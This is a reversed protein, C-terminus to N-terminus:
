WFASRERRVAEAEQGDLWELRLYAGRFRFRSQGLDSLEQDLDEALVIGDDPFVKSEHFWIWEM